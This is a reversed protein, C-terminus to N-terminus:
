EILDIIDNPTNEVLRERIPRAIINNFDPFKEM